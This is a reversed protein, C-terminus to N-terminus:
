SSLIGSSPPSLKQQSNKLVDCLFSSRALVALFFFTVSTQGFVGTSTVLIFLQAAFIKAKIKSLSIQEEIIDM